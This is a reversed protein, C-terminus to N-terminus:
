TQQQVERPPDIALVRGPVVHELSAEEAEVVDAHEIAALRKRTTAAELLGVAGPPHRQEALVHELQRKQEGCVIRTIFVEDQLEDLVEEPDGGCDVGRSDVTVLHPVLLVPEEVVHQAHGVSRTLPHLHSRDDTQERQAGCCHDLLVRDFSEREKPIPNTGVQHAIAVQEDVDGIRELGAV